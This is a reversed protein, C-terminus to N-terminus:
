HEVESSALGLVGKEKVELVRGREPDETSIIDNEITSSAEITLALDAMGNDKTTAQYYYLTQTSEHCAHHSANHTSGCACQQSDLDLKRHEDTGAIARQLARDDECDKLARVDGYIIDVFDITWKPSVQYTPLLQLSDIELSPMHGLNPFTCIHCVVGDVDACDRGGGM